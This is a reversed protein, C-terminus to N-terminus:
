PAARDGSPRNSGFNSWLLDTLRQAPSPEEMAASFRGFPPKQAKIWTLPFAPIVPFKVM